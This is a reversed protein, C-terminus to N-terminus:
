ADSEMYGLWIDSQRLGCSSFTDANSAYPLDGRLPAKITHEVYAIGCRIRYIRGVNPEAIEGGKFEGEVMGIDSFEM